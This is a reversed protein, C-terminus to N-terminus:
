ESLDEMFPTTDYLDTWVSPRNYAEPNRAQVCKRCRMQVRINKMTVPFNTLVGGCLSCRPADEVPM